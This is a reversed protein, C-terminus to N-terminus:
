KCTIEEIESAEGEPREADTRGAVSIFYKANSKLNEIAHSTVTAPLTEEGGTGDQIEPHWRITYNVVQEANGEPKEWSVDISSSTLKDVKLM